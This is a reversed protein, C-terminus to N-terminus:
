RVAARVEDLTDIGRTFENAPATDADAFVFSLKQADDVQAIEFVPDSAVRSMIFQPEDPRDRTLLLILGLEKLGQAVDSWKEGTRANGRLSWQFTLTGADDASEPSGAIVEKVSVEVDIVRWDSAPDDFDTIKAYTRGQTPPEGTEIVGLAPIVDTITGVVVHDVASPRKDTQSPLIDVLTDYPRHFSGGSGHDDVTALLAARAQAASVPKREEGQGSSASPQSSSCGSVALMLGAALSATARAVIPTTLM